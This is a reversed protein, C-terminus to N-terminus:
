NKVLDWMAEFLWSCRARLENWEAQEIKWRKAAFIDELTLLSLSNLM